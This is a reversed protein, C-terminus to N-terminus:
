RVAPLKLRRRAIINRMIESSGGSITIARSWLWADQLRQAAAGAETALPDVVPGFATLLEVGYRAIRNYAESYAIKAIPAEAESERGALVRGVHGTVFARAAEHEAVLQEVAARVASDGSVPAGDCVLADAVTLVDKLLLELLVVNGGVNFREVELGSMAVTWGQDVQGIVQEPALVVGDLFVENFEFVGGITRLPRVELGPSDMPVIFATLGQHRKQGSSTRLMALGFQAWHGDTTWTKQGALVWTGDPQQRARAKVGALDSGADPESFLQCWIDAGSRIAPLYRRKQEPSGFHLLVHSALMVQDIPRPVRARILEETVILEHLPRHDPRGGWEAPWSAGLLGTEYMTRYWVRLASEDQSTIPARHGERAQFPAHASIVERVHERFAEAGPASHDAELAERLQAASRPRENGFAANLVSRRMAHHVPWEWTFGIGGSLQICDDLAATCRRAMFTHMASVLQHARADRAALATAAEHVLADAEATLVALDALRHQVAQFSAIPQGFADRECLYRTLRESVATLAGLTDACFLLVCTDALIVPDPGALRTASAAALTVILSGRRTDLPDDAARVATGVTGQDVLLLPGGPQGVVLVDPPANGPIVATCSVRDGQEAGHVTCRGTVMAGVANGDLLARVIEDGASEAVAAAAVLTGIWPASSLARGSELAVACAELVRWGDGGRDEPTLLGLLGLEGIEPLSPDDAFLKRATSRLLELEETDIGVM